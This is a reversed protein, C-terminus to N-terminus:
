RAVAATASTRLEADSSTQPVEALIGQLFRATDETPGLFVSGAGLLGAAVAAQFAEPAGTYTLRAAIVTPTLGHDTLSVLVANFLKSQEPTPLSRTALLFSLESFSVNGMLDNTLDRGLVTISESTSTGISTRLWPRSDSM